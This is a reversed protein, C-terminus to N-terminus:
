IMTDSVKYITQTHCVQDQTLSSAQIVSVGFTLMVILKYMIAISSYFLICGNYCVLTYM